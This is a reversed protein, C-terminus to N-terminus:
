ASLPERTAMKEFDHPLPKKWWLVAVSHWGAARIRRDNLYPLLVPEVAEDIEDRTKGFLAFYERL